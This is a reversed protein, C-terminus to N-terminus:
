RFWSNTVNNWWEPYSPAEVDVPNIANTGYLLSWNTGSLSVAAGWAWSLKRLPVWQAAGVGSPKFEMWMEFSSATTLVRALYRDLNTDYDISIGPADSTANTSGVDNGYPYTTDLVNTVPMGDILQFTYWHGSGDNTQFTIAATDIVQVWQAEGSFGGGVSFWNSLTIGPTGFGFITGYHLGFIHQAPSGRVYNTDLAVTGTWATIEGQPRYVNFMGSAHLYFLSGNSLTLTESLQATHNTPPNGGSVWWAQTTDNTLM